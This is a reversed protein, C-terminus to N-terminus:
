TATWGDYASTAASSQPLAPDASFSRHSGSPGAFHPPKRRSFSPTSPSRCSSRRGLPRRPKDSPPSRRTPASSCSAGATPASSSASLGRPRRRPRGTRRIRRIARDRQDPPNPCRRDPGAIASRARYGRARGSGSVAGARARPAHSRRARRGRRWLASVRWTVSGPQAPRLAAGLRSAAGPQRGRAPRVRRDSASRTGVVRSSNYM